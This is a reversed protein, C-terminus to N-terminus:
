LLQKAVLELKMTLRINRLVLYLFNAIVNYQKCMGNRDRYQVTHVSSDGNKFQRIHVNLESRCGITHM